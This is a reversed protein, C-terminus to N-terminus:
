SILPLLLTLFTVTWHPGHGMKYMFASNFICLQM